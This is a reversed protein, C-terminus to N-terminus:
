KQSTRRFWDEFPGKQIMLSRGLRLAPFLGKEVCLYVTQRPVGFIRRIETTTYYDAHASGKPITVAPAKKVLSYHKQAALWKEFSKKTARRHGAVTVVELIGQNKPKDFIHYVVNRSVGMLRGIEPASLTAEKLAEDRVRDEATHYRSQGSYWKEFSSKSIRMWCDVVSVDFAGKHILTYITDTCVGLLKGADEVSLSNKRLEEGPPSGDVKKYKIQNAYWKEFSQIVVRMEGNIWVVEFKNKHVLWYSDTKKLGLLKGMERVSMTTKLRSPPIVRAELERDDTEGWRDDPVAFKAM